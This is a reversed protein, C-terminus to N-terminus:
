GVDTATDDARESSRDGRVDDRTGRCSTAETRDESDEDWEEYDSRRYHQYLRREEEPSLEGDPDINPADKVLGKEHCVRVDDGAIAAEHIPVFSVNSGFLGTKVAVWQPEGSSRDLYVDEIKGIKDGDRYVLTRGRWSEVGQPTAMAEEQNNAYRPPERGAEESHAHTRDCSGTPTRASLRLGRAGARYTRHMAQCTTM